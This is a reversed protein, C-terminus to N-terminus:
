RGHSCHLLSSHIGDSETSAVSRAFPPPPHTPRPPAAHTPRHMASPTRVPKSQNAPTPHPAKPGTPDKPHTPKQRQPSPALVPHPNSRHQLPPHTLRPQPVSDSHMTRGCKRRSSRSRFESTTAPAHAHIYRRVCARTRTVYALDSPSSENSRLARARGADSVQTHECSSCRVPVGSDSGCRIEVPPHIRTAGDARGAVLGERGTYM